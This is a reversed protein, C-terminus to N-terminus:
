DKLIVRWGMSLTNAYLERWELLSRNPFREFEERSVTLTKTSRDMVATRFYKAAWRVAKPSDFVEVKERFTAIMENMGLRAVANWDIPSEDFPNSLDAVRKYPEPSSVRASLLSALSCKLIVRSGAFLKMEYGEPNFNPSLKLCALVFWPDIVLTVMPVQNEPAADLFHVAQSTDVIEALNRWANEDLIIENAISPSPGFELTQEYVPTEDLDPAENLM